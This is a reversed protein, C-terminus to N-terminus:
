DILVLLIANIAIIALPTAHDRLFYAAIPLNEVWEFSLLGTADVSKISAFLVAPTTVFLLLSIAIAYLFLRRCFYSVGHGKINRWIIDTPETAKEVTLIINNYMSALQEEGIEKFDFFKSVSRGRFEEERQCCDSVRKKTNSCFIRLKQFDNLTFHTIVRETARISDFTVFAHGSPIFPKTSEKNLDEELSELAAECKKPDKYKSPICAHFATPRVMLMQFDKIDQIEDEIALITAFDPVMHLGLIKGGM